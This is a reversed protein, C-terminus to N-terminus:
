GRRPYCSAFRGFAMWRLDSFDIVLSKLHRLKGLAEIELPSIRLNHLWLTELRPLTELRALGEHNFLRGLNAGPAGSGHLDLRTLTPISALHELAANTIRTSRLSVHDLKAHSGLAKVGADTVWTSSLDLRKLAELSALRRLGDDGVQTYMLVLSKLKRCTGVHSM